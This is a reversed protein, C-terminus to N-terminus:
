SACKILPVKFRSFGHYQSHPIAPVGFLCALRYACVEAEPEFTFSNKRGKAWIFGRDDKLLWKPLNGGSGGSSLKKVIEVNGYIEVPAWQIDSRNQITTDITYIM